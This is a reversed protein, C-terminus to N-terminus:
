YSINPNNPSHACTSFHVFVQAAGTAIAAVVGVGDILLEYRSSYCFLQTFTVPPTADVLSKTDVATDDPHDELSPKKKRSFFGPTETEVPQEPAQSYSVEFAPSKEDLTSTRNDPM